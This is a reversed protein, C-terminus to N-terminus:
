WVACERRNRWNGVTTASADALVAATSCHTPMAPNPAFLARWIIRMARRNRRSRPDRGPARSDFNVAASAKVYRVLRGPTPGFDARQTM